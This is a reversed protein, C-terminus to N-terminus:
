KTVILQDPLLNGQIAAISPQRRIALINLPSATTSGTCLLFPLDPAM